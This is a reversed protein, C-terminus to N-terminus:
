NKFFNSELVEEYTIRQNANYVFIKEIIEVVCKDDETDSLPKLDIRNYKQLKKFVKKINIPSNKSKLFISIYELFEESPTGLKYNIQTLLDIEKKSRFAAVGYYLEYIICGMSWLDIRFDYPIKFIIEPARYWMSQVNYSDNNYDKISLGYDILVINWTERNRFLINEPKIDGHIIKYKRLYILTDTLDKIIIKLKRLSIITKNKIIEEYLNNCYYDFVIMEHGRFNFFDYINPILDEFKKDNETLKSRLFLLNTVEFDYSLKYNKHKRFAKIAMNKNTSHDFVKAVRGYQGKGINNLIQYKFQIHNNKCFNYMGEKDTYFSIDLKKYISNGVYFCEYKNESIEEKEYNLLDDM